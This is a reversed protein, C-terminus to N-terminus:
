VCRDQLLRAQKKTQLLGPLKAINSAVRRAEDMTLVKPPARMPLCPPMFRRAIDRTHMIQLSVPWGSSNQDHHGPIFNPRPIQFMAIGTSRFGTWGLNQEHGRYTKIPPSDGPGHLRNSRDYM